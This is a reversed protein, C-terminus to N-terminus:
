NEREIGKIMTSMQDTNLYKQFNKKIIRSKETLSEEDFVLIGIILSELSEKLSELADEFSSGFGALTLEDNELSWQDDKDHYSVRVSLPQLFSYEGLEPFAMSTFPRVEKITEMEKLKMRKNLVGKVIVPSKFLNMVNKETEPSYICRITENTQTKITFSRPEDGKIRMIIGKLEVSSKEYYESILDQIYGERHAPLTIPNSPKVLDYGFSVTFKNKKSLIGRFSELFRIKDSPDQFEDDIKRKFEDTSESLTQILDELNYVMQDFVMSGDSLDTPFDLPQLAAAVSGKEIETLYLVFDKKNHGKFKAERIKDIVRQLNTLLKGFTDAEIKHDTVIKGDIILWVKKSGNNTM